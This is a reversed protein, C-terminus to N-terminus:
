RYADTRHTVQLVVVINKTDDIEYIVRYQGRRASWKGDLPARLRKGVRQPNDLIPGNLFEIVASAVQEPLQYTLARAAGRAVKLRYTM